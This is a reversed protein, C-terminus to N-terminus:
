IVITGDAIVIRRDCLDSLSNDHTVIVFTQSLSERLDFILSHLADRSVSDLNGSPEDAFVVSPRNILARAVAVRQAEGGSLASPKHGRREALGVRDLLEMARAEIESQKGGAILGALVVNELATFEPLLHHSQFVFGIQTARFHSLADGRLQSIEIGNVEVLGSDPTLLTSLIQLLTTKGAGSRGLISLMEGRQVDLSVSRLVALDGYSKCINSAKIIM